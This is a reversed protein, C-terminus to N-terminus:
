SHQDGSLRYIAGPRGDALLADPILLHRAPPGKLQFYNMLGFGMMAGDAIEIAPTFRYAARLCHAAYVGVGEDRFLINGM